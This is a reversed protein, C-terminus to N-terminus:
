LRARRACPVALESRSKLTDAPFKRSQRPNRPRRPLGVEWVGSVNTCCVRRMRCKQRRRASLQVTDRRKLAGHPATERAATEQPTTQHASHKSERSHFTSFKRAVTAHSRRQAIEESMASRIGGSEHLFAVNRERMTSERQKIWSAAHLRENERLRAERPDNECPVTLDVVVM